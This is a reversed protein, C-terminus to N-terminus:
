VRIELKLNDRNEFDDIFNKLRSNLIARQYKKM